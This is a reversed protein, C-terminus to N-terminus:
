QPSATVDLFGSFVHCTSIRLVSAWVSGNGSGVTIASLACDLSETTGISIMTGLYKKSLGGTFHLCGM